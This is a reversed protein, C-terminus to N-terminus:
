WACLECIEFWKLGLGGRRCSVSLIAFHREKPGWGDQAYKVRHKKQKERPTKAADLGKVHAIQVTIFM